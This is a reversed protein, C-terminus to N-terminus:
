SSQGARRRSEQAAEVLQVELEEFSKARQGYGLAEILSTGALDKGQEMAESALHKLKPWNLELLEAWADCLAKLSQQNEVLSARKKQRQEWHRLQLIAMDQDDLSADEPLRPAPRADEAPPPFKSVTKEQGRVLDSYLDISAAENSKVILEAAAAEDFSLLGPSIQRLLLARAAEDNLQWLKDLADGLTHRAQGPIEYSNLGRQLAWEVAQSLSRHQSRALLELGYKIKPSMRVTLQQLQEEPPKPKPGRKKPAPKKESM